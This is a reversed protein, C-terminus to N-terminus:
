RCDGNKGKAIFLFNPAQQIAATNTAPNNPHERELEDKGEFSSALSLPVAPRPSGGNNTLVNETDSYLPLEHFMSSKNMRTV